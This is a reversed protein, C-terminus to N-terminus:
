ALIQPSSVSNSGRLPWSGKAAPTAVRGGLRASRREPRYGLAVRSRLDGQGLGQFPELGGQGVAVRKLALEPATPHGSDVQRLIQLVLTPHRSM